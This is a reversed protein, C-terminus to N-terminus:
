SVQPYHACGRQFSMFVRFYLMMKQAYHAYIRPYLNPTFDSKPVFDKRMGELNGELNYIEM